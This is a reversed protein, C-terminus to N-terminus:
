PVVMGVVYAEARAAHDASAILDVAARYPGLTPGATSEITAINVSQL